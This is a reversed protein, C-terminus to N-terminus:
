SGHFTPTNYIGHAMFIVSLIMLTIFCYKCNRESNSLKLLSTKSRRMDIPLSAKEMKIHRSASLNTNGLKKERIFVM